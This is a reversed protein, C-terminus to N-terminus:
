FVFYLDIVAVDFSISHNLHAANVMIELEDKLSYLIHLLCVSDAGGSIAVTVTDGKKLLGYHKITNLVKKIM